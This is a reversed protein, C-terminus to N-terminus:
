SPAERLQEPSVSRLLAVAAAVAAALLVLFAGGLVGVLLLAPPTDSLLSAAPEVVFEPVSPGALAVAALGAGVGVLAGFGVVVLQEMALAIFLTRQSAGTAALAAYEYRRRRAAASLSLVAALAALVAAAAADALFLVSALGPGQRSLEADAGASTQEGVVPVGADELGRRMRDVDGDVWVQQTSAALDAYAARSAYDLDVIAGDEPGGPVSTPRGVVALRLAGGNLGSVDVTSNRGALGAAVVGPLPTPRDHMDLQPPVDGVAFFSWRVGDGDAEIQVQQNLTDVWRGPAFADPVPQWRGDSRVELDSLTVAGSMDTALGGPGSLQFDRVACPCGSLSGTYTATAGARRVTGLPVPTSSTNGRAVTDLVFAGGIPTLRHVALRVRIEEGDVVLSEPAPPRLTSLLDAPDGVGAAGWHAVAAFREPQVGILRHEGDSYVAVASAEHGGPDVRDVVDGLPTGLPPVVTLVTPAGVTLRAVRSRNADAVAWAAISFTALAVATGLIMTTRTGGPRRAIHRVALFPGLGGGTRTRTFAARCALPLLRSAVVAVALGLLGPVLLALASSRASGISGSVGLQLLGAVAGTLVIGDFVWSRDTAHRGTRRWQEVVPRRLTGRAAALVAAVGGTVAVAAAAWGLGPLPVPTGDRLLVSALLRTVAWGALTGVPLAVALVTVPEGLGFALSRFGAYGRLKALAIETGRAEVADTVVLFMLLWTLVLLEATVVIVPISLASWSEHVREGTSALGTAVSVASLEPSTTLEADLEGLVDVDAPTIRAVALPRAIVVSGQPNGSMQEITARSTFMADHAVDAGASPLETPFYNGARAFWYDGPAPPPRHVGVVRLPGGRAPRVEDGVTWGNNRSLSTSITVEGRATPCRGDAFSVHDCVGDRWVLGITQARDPFFANTELARVQPQFLRDVVAAGGVADQLAGDVASATPDLTGGVPGQRVVQFGRGIVNSASLTDQLISDRAALYYTPGVTAAATACLAVLLIVATTGARHLLARFLTLAGTV